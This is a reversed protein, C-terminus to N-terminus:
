EMGLIAFDTFYTELVEFVPGFYTDAPELSGDPFALMLDFSMDQNIALLFDAIKVRDPYTYLAMNHFDNLQSPMSVAALETLDISGEALVDVMLLQGDFGTISDMRETYSLDADLKLVEREGEFLTFLVEMQGEEAASFTYVLNMPHMFTNVVLASPITDGSWSALLELTFVLSEEKIIYANVDEPRDYSADGISITALEYQQLVFQCDNVGSAPGESPYFFHVEDAPYGPTYTWQSEAADWTYTGAVVDLGGPLYIDPLFSPLVVNSEAGKAGMAEQMCEQFAMMSSMGEGQQLDELVDELDLHVTQLQFKLDEVSPSDDRSCSFFLLSLPILTTLIKKM